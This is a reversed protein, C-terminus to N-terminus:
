LTLVLAMRFLMDTKELPTLVTAGLPVGGPTFLDVETLAPLNRWLIQLSPKLALADSISVSLSNTFDARVDKTEDLNFDGVLKSDFKSTSTLQRWYEWGARAGAFSDAVDPNDVVDSQFTYTVAYNTRLQADARDIWINGAGAALVLRSDIGAFTNRMWDTGGYAFFRPSLTRDYRASASYAEATRERNEEVDIDYDAATGVARRSRITSETRLGAAELKLLNPGARNEVSAGLGFTMASANGTSVVSTLESVFSWGDPPTDQARAPRAVVAVLALALTSAVLAGYRGHQGNLQM